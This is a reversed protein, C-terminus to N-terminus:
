DSNEGAKRLRGGLRTKVYNGNIRRGQTLQRGIVGRTFRKVRRRASLLRARVENGFEFKAKEDTGVGLMEGFSVFDDFGLVDEPHDGTVTPPSCTGRRSHVFSRIRLLFHYADLDRSDELNEYVDHSHVFETGALTWVGALFVRLGEKKIDFRDLREPQGAPSNLHERWFGSIHLFHEFPDYTERIRNRFHEALGHPDYVPQMDVFANLQKGELETVDDFNFPLTECGFGCRARFESTNIVQRQLEVLFDNGEIVDDFLFAFDTDSCPSMENRGTGGLAVAAFPRAYGFAKQQGAAWEGMVARYIASRMEAIERGNDLDSGRILADNAAILRDFAAPLGDSRVIERARDEHKNLTPHM